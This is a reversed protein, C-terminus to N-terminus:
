NKLDFSYALINKALLPFLACDYKLWYLINWAISLLKPVDVFALAFFPIYEYSNWLAAVQILAWNIPFEDLSHLVVRRVLLCLGSNEGALRTYQGAHGAFSQPLWPGLASVAGLSQDAKYESCCPSSGLLRSRCCM